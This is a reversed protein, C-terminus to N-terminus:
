KSEFRGVCDPIAALGITSQLHFVTLTKEPVRVTAVGKSHAITAALGNRRSRTKLTARARLTGRHGLRLFPSHKCSELLIRRVEAFSSQTARVGVYTEGEVSLSGDTTSKPKRVDYRYQASTSTSSVAASVSCALQAVTLWRPPAPTLANSFPALLGIINSCQRLFQRDERILPSRALFAIILAGL